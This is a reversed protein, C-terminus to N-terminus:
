YRQQGAPDYRGSRTYPGFLRHLVNDSLQHMAFISRRFSRRFIELGSLPLVATQRGQTHTTEEKWIGHKNEGQENNMLKKPIAWTKKAMKGFVHHYELQCFM